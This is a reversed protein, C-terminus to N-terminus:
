CLIAKNMKKKFFQSNHTLFHAQLLRTCHLYINEQFEREIIAQYSSINQEVTPSTFETIIYIDSNKALDFYFIIENNKTNEQYLIAKNKKEDLKLFLVKENSTIKLIESKKIEEIKSKNIDLGNINFRKQLYIIFDPLTNPEIETVSSDLISPFSSVLYPEGGNKEIEILDGLKKKISESCHKLYFKLESLIEENDIKKILQLGIIPYLFYKFIDDYPHNEFLPKISILTSLDHSILNSNNIIYFIGFSSLTYYVANHKTNEEM